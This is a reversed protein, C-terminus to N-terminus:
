VSSRNQFKKQIVNRISSSLEENELEQLINEFFGFTLLEKAKNKEIGRSQLYFLEDANLSSSTAGHSCRVDNAQIELGPLSNSEAEESLLLNRNTQYADTKQAGEDVIIIGSFVTKSQDLLVNKYLLNSKANEASHIQKSRQDFQQNNDAVTLSSLKANATSGTLTIKNEFRAYKSGLSVALSKTESSREALTSDLQFSLTQENWNQFVTRTVKAYPKAEINAVAISLGASHEAHSIYIDIFDVKSSDEAIVITQPFLASGKANAWHYAIFPDTIEIDTPIYLFSGTHAYAINLYYFKEAGLCPANKSFYKKIFEPHTEFAEQLPEWIIGKEKLQDSVYSHELIHNDEFILRGAFNEVFNSNAVIDVQEHESPAQSLHFGEVVLEPIASFRWHEDTRKPMEYSLFCTWANAKLEQLWPLHSYQKLHAEFSENTLLDVLDLAAPQFPFLEILQSAAM